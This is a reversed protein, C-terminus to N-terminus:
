FHRHVRAQYLGYAGISAVAIAGVLLIVQLAGWIWGFAERMRM